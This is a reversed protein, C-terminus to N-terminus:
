DAHFKRPWCCGFHCLVRECATSFLSAFFFKKKESSVFEKVVCGCDNGADAIFAVVTRVDSRWVLGQSSICDLISWVVVHCSLSGSVGWLGLEHTNCFSLFQIM